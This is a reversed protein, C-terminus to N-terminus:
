GGLEVLDRGPDRGRTLLKKLEEQRAIEMASAESPEETAEAEAELDALVEAGARAMVRDDNQGPGAQAKGAAGRHWFNGMEELCDRDVVVSQRLRYKNQFRGLMLKRTGNAGGTTLWGVREKVEGTQFDRQYYLRRYGRGRLVDNTLIGMNNAEAALLAPADTAAGERERYGYWEGVLELMDALTGPDMRGYVRACESRMGRVVPLVYAACADGQELGEAVDSFVVYKKGPEPVAWVRLYGHAQAVFEIRGDAGRDLYGDRWEPLQQRLDEDVHEMDFFPRGSSLFAETPNRPYTEMMYDRGMKALLDDYWDQTREPDADWSLFIPKFVMKGQEALRWTREFDNGMGNGTSVRWLWGKRKETGPLASDVIKKAYLQYADEDVLLGTPTRGRGANVTSTQVEIISGTEAIKVTTTNCVELEPRCWDPLHAIMVKIRELSKKAEKENLSVILFEQHMYFLARFLIFALIVFTAGVQRAKLWIILREVAIIHAAREQEPWLGFPVVFMESVTDGAPIKVCERCFTIFGKAEHGVRTYQRVKKIALAYPDSM